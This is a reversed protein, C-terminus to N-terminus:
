LSEPVYEATLYYAEYGGNYAPDSACLNYGGESRLVSDRKEREDTPTSWVRELYEATDINEGGNDWQKLYELAKRVWGRKVMKRVTEFDEQDFGQNDLRIIEYFKKM